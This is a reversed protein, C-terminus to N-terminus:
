ITKRSCHADIFFWYCYTLEDLVYLWQSHNLIIMLIRPTPLQGASQEPPYNIDLVEV